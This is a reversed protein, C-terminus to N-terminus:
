ISGGHVLQSTSMIKRFGVGDLTPFDIKTDAIVSPLKGQLSQITRPLECYLHFGIAAVHGSQELGLIDGAGRIEFDRMAIKM